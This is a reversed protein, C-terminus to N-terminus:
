VKIKCENLCTEYLTFLIGDYISEEQYGDQSFSSYPRAVDKNRLKRPPKKLVSPVSAKIKGAKADAKAKEHRAHTQRQAEADSIWNESMRKWYRAYARIKELLM